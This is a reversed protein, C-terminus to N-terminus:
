DNQQGALPDAVYYTIYGTITGSSAASAGVGGTLYVFDTSSLVKGLNPGKTASALTVSTIADSPVENGLGAPTATGATYLTFGFDVTPSTGGTSTTASINISNVVAGIPLIVPRSDSSSLKVNAVASAVNSIYFQAVMLGTGCYATRTQDGGGSRWISQTTSVAM